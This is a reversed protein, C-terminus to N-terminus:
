MTKLAKLLREPTIPQDKIRVGVADYIANAIAPAIANVPSEGASKAGFPGSAVPQEVLIIESEPFDLSSPIKYSTFNDSVLVGTDDVIYDEMLGYGIGQAMGGELQGEVTMPNISRGIDHALVMKLLKTEGTETDVEVEAFVAEPVPSQGPEFSCKATIQCAEGRYNYITDEAVERVTIGRSPSGKVFIRGEKVVLDEASAEMMKAAREIIQGKAEEAARKVANGTVYCTRSAHSGVDFVTANTDGWVVHIDEYRLGLGEAAIQSLAGIINQGLEGPSVVLNASGDENLKILANSHELLIPYDGSSHMMIAMGVGRRKVGTQKRGRKDKWGIREAGLEICKGMESNEIPISAIWTRDGTRMHNKLRFAMPDMGIKEAAMDVAQEMAWMGQPNGFGRFAGSVPLNTYVIDGWGATSPSRYLAMTHGLSAGAVEGSHSFYAGADMTFSVQLATISGDRKVGMKVSHTFPHRTETGMFQEERTFELKVPRGTKMSLAICIPEARLSTGSGFAGGIHPSIWRIMGEPIDFIEAIKRREPYANQGPSWITLKGNPEFNAVCTVPELVCHKQRSTRFTEEIIHDAEQFGKEVDGEPTPFPHRWIHNGEPYDHIGPAGPKMAEVPDFVAQLREYAVEILGLAEEAISENIAAIAAVPDGVYRAKDTLVYQDDKVRKARAERDRILLDDMAMNYKRKPVDEFTLVAEVGPLKEAKSKDIGVIKAHPYPSRLVKGILMGPLRLDVTYRAAGTSKEVAEPRPLRKGVVSFEESM